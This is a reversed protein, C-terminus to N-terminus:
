GLIARLTCDVNKYSWHRAVCVSGRLLFHKKRSHVQVIEFGYSFLFPTCIEGYVRSVTLINFKYGSM